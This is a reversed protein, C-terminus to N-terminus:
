GKPYLIGWLLFSLTLIPHQLLPLPVQLRWYGMAPQLLAPALSPLVAGARWAAKGRDLLDAAERPLLQPVECLVQVPDPLRYTSVKAVSPNKPALLGQPHQMCSGQQASAAFHMGAMDSTPKCRSEVEQELQPLIHSRALREGCGQVIPPHNQTVADSVGPYPDWGWGEM